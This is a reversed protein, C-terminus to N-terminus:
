GRRERLSLHERQPGLPTATKILRALAAAGREPAAALLAALEAAVRACAVSAGAITAAGSVEDIGPLWPRAGFDARPEGLYSIEGDGCRADGTARVIGAYSAPYVTPGVAPVSAVLLVGAEVARCCAGALVARDQTLGFSMNVVQAGESVLWDLGAAIVAPAAIGRHDFVQASMLRIAPVRGLILKALASGHGLSDIGPSGVAVEGGDDLYFRRAAAAAAAVGDCLGSDLLGLTIM